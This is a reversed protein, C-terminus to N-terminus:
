RMNKEIFHLLNYSSSGKSYLNWKQSFRKIQETDASPDAIEELLSGSNMCSKGPIVAKYDDILGRKEDYEKLDYTFFLMPKNLFAYEFPVSSYDTILIDSAIFLDKLRFDSVDKVYESDSLVTIKNRLAPHLKVFLIYDGNLENILEEKTFPLRLSHMDYDRFTPAYLIIKKNSFSRLYEAQTKENTQYYEDTLPVGIKLLQHDKVGFSNKFIRGMEESGVTVYDFSKYVKKFRKIDQKSRQKNTVDELGFKKLSGNAHWVQICKTQPRNNLASTLLFYNDTIVFKSKFLTLVAHFLHFPNKENFYRSNLGSLEDKLSVAHRTYLVTLDYSLSDSHARYSNIVAQANEEFSVLLTVKDGPKTWRLLAGLIYLYISYFATLLSRINM